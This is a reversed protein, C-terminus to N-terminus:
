GFIDRGRDIGGVVVVDGIEDDKDASVSSELRTDRGLWRRIALVARGLGEYGPMPDDAGEDEYRKGVTVNRAVDMPRLSATLAAKPWRALM